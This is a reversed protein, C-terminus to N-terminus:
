RSFEASTPTPNSGDSYKHSDQRKIHLLIMHSAIKYKLKTQKKNSKEKSKKMRKPLNIEEIQQDLIFFRM